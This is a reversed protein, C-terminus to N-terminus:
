ANPFAGDPRMVLRIGELSIPLISLVMDHHNKREVFLITQRRDSLAHQSSNMQVALDPSSETTMWQLTGNYAHLSKVKFVTGNDEPKAKTRVLINTSTLACSSQSVIMEKTIVDQM